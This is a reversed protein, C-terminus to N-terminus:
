GWALQALEFPSRAPLRYCLCQWCTHSFSHKPMKGNIMSWDSSLDLIYMSIFIMNAEAEQTRGRSAQQTQRCCPWHVYMPLQLSTMCDYGWFKYLIGSIPLHFYWDAQHHYGPSLTLNGWGDHMASYQRETCNPPGTSSKPMIKHHIGSALTKSSGLM